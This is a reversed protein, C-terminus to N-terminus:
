QHIFCLKTQDSHQVHALLTIRVAFLALTDRTGDPSTSGATSPLHDKGEACSQHPWAQLIKNQPLPEGTLSTFSPDCFHNLSQLVEGTLFSLSSPSNLRFLLDLLIKNMYTLVQLSPAFCISGPEKQHNGSVSTFPVFQVAPPEGHVDSFTTKVTFALPKSLGSAKSDGDKSISLFAM